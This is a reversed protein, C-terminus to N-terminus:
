FDVVFDFFIWSPDDGTVKADAYLRFRASGRSMSDMGAIPTSAGEEQAAVASAFALGLALPALARYKM